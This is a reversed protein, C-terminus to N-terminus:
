AATRTVCVSGVCCPVLVRAEKARISTSPTLIDVGVAPSSLCGVEAAVGRAEAQKPRPFRPCPFARETPNTELVLGTCQSPMM